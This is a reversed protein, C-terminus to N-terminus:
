KKSPTKIQLCAITYARRVRPKLKNVIYNIIQTVCNTYKLRALVFPSVYLTTCIQQNLHAPIEFITAPSKPVIFILEFYKKLFWCQLISTLDDQKRWLSDYDIIVINRIDVRGDLSNLIDLTSEM